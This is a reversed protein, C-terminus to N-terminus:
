RCRMLILHTCAILLAVTSTVYYLYGQLVSASFSLVLTQLSRPMLGLELEVLEVDRADHLGWGKGLVLQRSWAM